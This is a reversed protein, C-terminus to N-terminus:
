KWLKGCLGRYVLAGSPQAPASGVREASVALEVAPFFVKEAPEPLDIHALKDVATPLAGLPSFQGAKDIRWLYLVTGEALPVPTIVKLDVRKGQRLSSIILGPQGKATALVGVYSAPLQLASPPPSAQAVVAAPQVQQQQVLLTLTTGAVLGFALAGVPLPALWRRWWAGEDSPRAHNSAVNAPLAQSHATTRQEIAAWLAASPQPEPLAMLLPQMRQSWAEVALAVDTRQFMIQEFRRRTAAGMSGQVYAAALRDVTDPHHYWNM